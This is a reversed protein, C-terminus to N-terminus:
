IKFHFALSRFLINIEKWAFPIIIIMGHLHAEMQAEKAYILAHTTNPLTLDESVKKQYEFREFDM